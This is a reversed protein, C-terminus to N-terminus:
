QVHFGVLDAGLLGEVLERQWPCIGFAEPNPWPIHWFVAVRVDPRAEKVMRPLLAFNYDQVLLIPSATGAMEDLVADAFRRNIRQYFLWDEPRFVPRTHAIHCLPWLGENSFGEYYGRDEEESLWVRRLTYTPHHPPVEIRDHEDVVARDNEGFVHMYPERNSVVFLDDGQLKSELSVRLRDSTWLASQTERLQAEERAAARASTLDHALHRVENHIQDFIEGQPLTPPTGPSGARLSRLWKAMKALPSAFTWRVLLVAFAIILLTQVLTNLLSDRLTHDLRSDIFGTDYVVILSGNIQGNRHLPVAYIHLPAGKVVSFDAVGADTQVARTAQAPRTAFTSSLGPTIGISKGDADYVAVGVLHERQGYREVIHNLSRDNARGSSSELSEQLNEALVASRHLLDNRLNRRETRVQYITYVTSVCLVSIALPLVLKLTTRM